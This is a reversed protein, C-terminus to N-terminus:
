LIVIGYDIRAWCWSNTFEKEWLGANDKEKSKQWGNEKLWDEAKKKTKACALAVSYESFFEGSYIVYGKM